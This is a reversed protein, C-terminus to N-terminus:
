DHTAEEADAGAGLRALWWAVLADSAPSTVGYAACALPAFARLAADRAHADTSAHASAFAAAAAAWAGQQAPLPLAAVQKASLKIADTNMAAGAYKTLALATIPPAALAAALLMLQAPDRPVVSLVPVSPLFRGEPDAVVEIVRTQSAVLLKPVLRQAIWPGLKGRAVMQERDVRPAQWKRKLIRMPAVGWGCSALDIGGTTVIPPFRAEFRAPDGTRPCAADEILFGELGYYQDRFDATVHALDGIVGHSALAEAPVGSAAAMLHSWTEERLLADSDVELGPLPTFAGGHSRRVIRRRQGDKELSVACTYVAAEAFMHENSVWLADLAAGQLLGDRVVKADATALFSQPQVLMFTGRPRTIRQSLLLFLAALDSYGKREGGLSAGLLAAAQRPMATSSDLQNLFPPNGLICDFGGM